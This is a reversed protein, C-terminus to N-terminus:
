LLTLASRMLMLLVNGRKEIKEPDMNSIVWIWNLAKLHPEYYPSWDKIGLMLRSLVTWFESRYVKDYPRFNKIGVWMIWFSCSLTIWNDYKKNMTDDVDDFHCSYPTVPIEDMVNIVFNSMIKAMAARTIEWDLNASYIDPASTLGYYSAFLYANNMERTYGNALIEKQDGELYWEWKLSPKNSVSGSSDVVIENVIWIAYDDVSANGTNGPSIITWNSCSPILRSPYTIEVKQDKGSPAVVKLTIIWKDVFKNYFDCDLSLVISWDSIMPTWLNVYKKTSKDYATIVFKEDWPRKHWWLSLRGDVFDHSFSYLVVDYASADRPVKCKNEFDDTMVEFTYSIGWDFEKFWSFNFQSDSNFTYKEIFDCTIPVEYKLEKWSVKWIFDDKKTTYNYATIEVDWPAEGEGWNVILKWDKQDIWLQM